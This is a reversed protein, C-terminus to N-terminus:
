GIEVINHAEPGKKGQAIDFEVRQGEALTKYGKRQIQSFHAFVDKGDGDPGIFGYGKANNFWRVTGQAM